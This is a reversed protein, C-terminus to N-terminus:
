SSLVENIQEADNLFPALNAMARSEILDVKFLALTIICIVAAVRDVVCAFCVSFFIVRYIDSIELLVSSHASHAAPM